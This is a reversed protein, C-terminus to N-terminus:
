RSVLIFLETRGLLSIVAGQNLRIEIELMPM